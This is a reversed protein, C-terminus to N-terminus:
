QAAEDVVGSGDTVGPVDILPAAVGEHMSKDGLPEHPRGAKRQLLDVEHRLLAEHEVVEAATLARSLRLEQLVDLRHRTVALADGNTPMEDRLAM